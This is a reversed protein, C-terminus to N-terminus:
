FPHRNDIEKELEDATRRKNQLLWATLESELFFLRSGRKFHPIRPPRSSAMQFIWSPKYGTFAAAEVAGKLIRDGHLVMKNEDM